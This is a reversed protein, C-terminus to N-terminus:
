NKIMLTSVEEEGHPKENDVIKVNDLSGLLEEPIKDVLKKSHKEHEVKTPNKTLIDAENDESKVFV